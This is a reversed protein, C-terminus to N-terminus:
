QPEKHVWVEVGTVPDVYNLEPNCWCDGSTRHERAVPAGAIQNAAFRYYNHSGASREHLRMLIDVCKKRELAMADAVLKIVWASVKRHGALKEIEQQTM